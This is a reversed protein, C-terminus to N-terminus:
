RNLMYNLQLASSFGSLKRRAEEEKGKISHRQPQVCMESLRHYSSRKANTQKTENTRKNAFLKGVTAM